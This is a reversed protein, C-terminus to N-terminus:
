ERARWDQGHIDVMHRRMTEFDAPGFGCISCLSAHSHVHEQLDQLCLGCTYCYHQRRLHSDLHASFYSREDEYYPCTLLMQTTTSPGSTPPAQAPSHPVTNGQSPAEPYEDQILSEVDPGRRAAAFQCGYLIHFRVDDHSHSLYGCLACKKGHGHCGLRHRLLSPQSQSTQDCISGGASALVM